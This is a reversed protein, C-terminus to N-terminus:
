PPDGAPRAQSEDTAASGPGQTREGLRNLIEDYASKIADRLGEPSDANLAPGLQAKWTVRGPRYSYGIRCEPFEEELSRQVCDLEGLVRLLNAAEENAAADVLPVVGGDEEVSEPLSM